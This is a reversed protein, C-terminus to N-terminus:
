PAVEALGTVGTEVDSVSLQAPAESLTVKTRGGESKTSAIQAGVPVASLVRGELLKGSPDEAWYTVERGNVAFQVVIPTPPALTVQVTQTASGPREGTPWALTEDIVHLRVALGRWKEHRLELTGKALPGLKAVGDAATVVVLEGVQLRQEPVPWGALDMVGVYADRGEVFTVLRAPQTGTPGFARLSITTGEDTGAAPAQWTVGYRGGAGPVVQSLAGLPAAVEVTAGERGRGLTDKVEASIGLAGGYHVIPTAVDLSLQEAAGQVLSLELEDRSLNRAEKWQAFVTPTKDKAPLQAPATYIWEYVGEELVRRESRQGVSVRLEVNANKQPAGFPDSTACVIRAKAEGDAPLRQPNMVCSLQDTPPLQLDIRSSRRNGARDVAKGKAFRHGPPVVVPLEFRGDPGARAPGYSVGAIEISMQANRETYGPLDIATALPVLLTGIAGHVAGPHPWPAFAVIVAVEPYRTGPLLYKVRYHGPTAVEIAEITGVNAQLVPPPTDADLTGDPKLVRVEITARTDRGKVPTSGDLALVVKGAPPGIPVAMQASLAGSRGRAIVERVGPAPVVFWTALPGASATKAASGGKVELSPNAKSM